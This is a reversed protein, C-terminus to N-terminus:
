LRKPKRKELGLMQRLQDGMRFLEEIPYQELTDLMMLFTWTGALLAPATYEVKHKMLRGSLRVLTRRLPTAELETSQMLSWVIVCTQAVVALRKATAQASEQQWQEVHQGAQKLLKFFSEIKWRWYYWQAIKDVSVKEPLNSWLRWTALVKGSESRVQAVILRLPLPKGAITKSTLKGDRTRAQRVAQNLTVVTEAVYLDAKRGKYLGPGSYHFKKKLKQEVESLLCSKEKYQVRRVDNGRVIFHRKCRAFRRLHLLSDGQRDIIHVQPLGLGQQEVHGITRGLEDMESRSPLVQERRTSHVGDSAEVGLYLPSLPSGDVDSVLLAAQLLYGYDNKNYLVIRDDKSEHDTYHLPSWDHIVLAWQQCRSIAEKAHAKIPEFTKVLSIRDNKYFRYAGMASSMLTQGQPLIRLGTALAEAPGLHQQVLISYRKQLRPEVDPTKIVHVRRYWIM